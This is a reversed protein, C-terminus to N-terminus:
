RDSYGSLSLANAGRIRLSHTDVLDEPIGKKAPYHLEVAAWKLNTRMDEDNVDCRKGEAWYASLFTKVGLSQRRISIYRRGLARVACNHEEGDTGQNVYVGKWGNKSNDLKLTASDATMIKDDHANRALQRLQGEENKKFFTCDELKFQKTQKTENRSRKVTYEGV